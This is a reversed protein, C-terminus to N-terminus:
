HYPSWRSRCEKGVRREESRIATDTIHGNIHVGLDLKVVDGKVFVRDDNVTPSDHAALHNVSIDAPFAPKGGLEVIKAEVKEVVDLYKVGEKILGVGFERTKKTIQGSKILDEM